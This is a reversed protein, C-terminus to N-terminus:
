YFVEHGKWMVFLILSLDAFKWGAVLRISEEGVRSGARLSLKRILKCLNIAEALKKSACRRFGWLRCM